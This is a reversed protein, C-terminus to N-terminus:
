WTQDTLWVQNELVSLSGECAQGFIVFIHKLSGPFGFFLVYWSNVLQWFSTNDNGSIQWPNWGFHTQWGPNKPSPFLWDKCSCVRCPPILTGLFIGHWASWIKKGPERYGRHVKWLRRHGRPLLIPLTLGFAPFWAPVALNCRNGKRKSGLMSHSEETRPTLLPSCEWRSPHISVLPQPSSRKHRISM